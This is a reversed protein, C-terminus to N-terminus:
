TSAPDGASGPGSAAGPSTDVAGSGRRRLGQVAQIKRALEQSAYLSTTDLSAHGALESVVELPAGDVLAQRVFTHRLWHTSAAELRQPSLGLAQAGPHQRAARAAQGFFRKLCAHIGAASLPQGALGTRPRQRLQGLQLSWQPVSPQLGCILGTAVPMLLDPEAPAPSPASASAKASSSPLARAGTGAGAALAQADALHANLLAVVEDSLPVERQRRRKGTVTLVWSPALGPLHVRRLDAWRAQALEDLRLGSAALTALLAQLRRRVPGAPGLSAACEMLWAWETEGFSRQLPLTPSPLNFGKMVARMPNAMLYGAAVLGEFLTQVIVLAQKQSAPSPQGRFPRWMPDDREVAVPHVWSAPVAQLFQRWAQCDLASVSSLPKNQVRTCFLLFREVEKRYSRQTAPREDYRSLWRTVAQLDDVAELANPGRHRFVGDLGMLSPPLALRELPVLGFQPAPVLQARALGLRLARQQAPEDLGDRLPTQLADAQSRLWAQVQTARRAGFGPIRGHWRHGYVNICRALDDLSLLGAKRLRRAVPAAFWLGLTDAPTPALVLRGSLRNLAQVRAKALDAPPPTAPESPQPLQPPALPDEDTGDLGMASRYEALLEAESWLDPDMGSEALWEDLTPLRRAAAAPARQALVALDARVQTDGPLRESLRQGAELFQALLQQRLHEVHRLDSTTEAWALYREFADALDMGLFGARLFALHHVGLARVERLVRSHAGPPRGRRRSPLAGPATSPGQAPAAATSLPSTNFPEVGAAGSEPPTSRNLLPTTAPLVASIGDDARTSAPILPQSTKSFPM